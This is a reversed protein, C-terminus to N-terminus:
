ARTLSLSSSARHWLQRHLWAASFPRMAKWGTRWHPRATSSRLPVARRPSPWFRMALQQQGCIDSSSRGSLLVGGVLQGFVGIGARDLGVEGVVAEALDDGLSGGVPTGDLVGVVPAAQDGGAGVPAADGGGIGIVVAAAQGQDVVGGRREGVDSEGMVGGECADGGVGVFAMDSADGVADDAGFEAVLNGGGAGADGGGIRCDAAIGDGFLGIELAVGGAGGVGRTALHQDVVIVGVARRPDPQLVPGAEGGKEVLDGIGRHARHDRRKVAVAMRLDPGM